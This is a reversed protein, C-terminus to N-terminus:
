QFVYYVMGDDYVVDEMRYEKWGPEENNMRILKAEGTKSDMQYLGSVDSGARDQGFSMNLYCYDGAFVSSSVSQPIKDDSSFSCVKERGTGDLNESYLALKQSDCWIYIKDGYRQLTGINPDKFWANCTEDTHMCNAKNCLPVCIDDEFNWYHLFKGSISYINSFVYVGGDASEPGIAGPAKAFGPTQAVEKTTDEGKGCAALCLTM